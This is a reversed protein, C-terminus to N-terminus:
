QGDILVRDGVLKGEPSYVPLRRLDPWTYMGVEIRCQEIRVSAPVELSYEDEVLDGEEWMTTPMRGSEPESDKQAVIRDDPGLLHVFVTYDREVNQLARWYLTLRFTQGKDTRETDLRYSQLAIRDGLRMELRQGGAAIETAPASGLVVKVPVLRAFNGAPRKDLGYVQSRLMTRRDYLGVEIWHLGNQADLPVTLTHRTTFEDGAQWYGAPYGSSDEGAVKRGEADVLHTFVAYDADKDEPVREVKWLLNVELAGGPVAKGDTAYGELRVGNDFPIDVPKFAATGELSFGEDARAEYLGFAQSSGPLGVSALKHVGLSGELLGSVVADPQMVLFLNRDATGSFALAKSDDFRKINKHSALLYEMATGFTSNEFAVYAVAEKDRDLEQGLLNAAEMQYRLPIGYGERVDHEQIFDIFSRFELVQVGAVLVAIVAVGSLVIGRAKGIIHCRGIGTEPLIPRGEQGSTAAQKLSPLQETGRGELLSSPNSDGVARVFVDWMIDRSILYPVWDVVESLLLAIVVFPMPFLVIMYHLQMDYSRRSGMIVLVALWLFLLVYKTSSRWGGSRASAVSKLLLYAVGALFLWGELTNAWTLHSVRSIFDPISPATIAAYGPSAILQFALWAPALDFSSRQVGLSIISRTNQFGNTVEWYIYPALTALSMVFGLAAYRIRHRTPCFLLVLILLPVFSVSVMHIQVLLALSLIALAVHGSRRHVAVSFLSAFFLITFLPLVDPNWIKRSFVVAWPSTAFLLSSLLAVRAGFYERTFWFGLILAVVNLLAVFGTALVPDRSIALPIAMLYVFLPSNYPGISTKMGILPLQGNEIHWRALGAWTAEDGKFEALDLSSLRLYAAVLIIAALLLTYPLNHTRTNRNSQM